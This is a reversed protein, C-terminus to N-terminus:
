KGESVEDATCLDKLIEEIVYKTRGYPNTIAVGTPHSEDVPLFQPAGYVTASSSFIISKCGCESM